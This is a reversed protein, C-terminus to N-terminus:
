EGNVLMVIQQVDLVNVAGDGNVDAAEGWNQRGLIHGACAHVDALTVEGDRNVDGEPYAGQPLVTVIRQDGQWLTSGAHRSYARAEITYVRNLWGATDWEITFPSEYSTAAPIGDVLFLVYRIADPNTVELQVQVRGSVSGGESPSVIQLSFNNSTGSEYAGRDPSSGLYAYSVGDGGNWSISRDVTIRNAGYDVSTIRIPDNSGVSILDGLGSGWGDIFYGADHVAIQTGSGSSVTTTLAGASDM